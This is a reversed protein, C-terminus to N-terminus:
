EADGAGKGGAGGTVWSVPLAVEVGLAHAMHMYASYVLAKERWERSHPFTVYADYGAILEEPPRLDLETWPVAKGDSREPEILDALLAYLQPSTLGPAGAEGDHTTLTTQLMTWRGVANEGDSLRDPNDAYWRLLEAAERRRDDTAM